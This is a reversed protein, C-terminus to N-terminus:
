PLTEEVARIMANVIKNHFTRWEAWTEIRIARDMGSAAPEDKGPALMGTMIEFAKAEIEFRDNANLKM